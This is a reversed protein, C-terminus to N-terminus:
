IENLELRMQSILDNKYQMILSAIAEMTRQNEAMAAQNNTMMQIQLEKMMRSSEEFNKDYLLELLHLTKLISDSAILRITNTEQKIRTLEKNSDFMLRQVRKSLVTTAQTEGKKDNRSAANLYNRNFEEIIPLMEEIMRSNSNANFNDLIKFFNLYQEKKSEYQYKRKEIDLQYDKKIEEIERNFKSKIEESEETLLRNKKLLTKIKAKEVVLTRFYLMLFGIASFVIIHIYPILFDFNM